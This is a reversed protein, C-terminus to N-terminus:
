QLRKTGYSQFSNKYEMTKRHPNEHYNTRHKKKREKKDEDNNMRKVKEDM